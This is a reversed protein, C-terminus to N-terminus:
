LKNIYRSRELLIYVISSVKYNIKRALFFRLILTFESFFFIIGDKKVPKVDEM